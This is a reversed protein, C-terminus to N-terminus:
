GFIDDIEDKKRKKKVRRREPEDIAVSRKVNKVVEESIVPIPASIANEHTTNTYPDPEPEPPRVESRLDPRRVSVGTDEDVDTSIGAPAEAQDVLSSTRRRHPVRGPDLSALIRHVAAWILELVEALESILGSMRSAIAALTLILQIFAGTQMALTFSHYIHALREHMKRVLTLSAGVRELVFSVSAVDPHHTWSGKLLKSNQQLEEGFFSYRLSDVLSPLSLEEVRDGYKRMEAVRRWFLAPRHQNKGKYYLRHLIQLEDSFTDLVPQLRRACLKLDKLAADINPHLAADLSTKATRSLTPPRRSRQISVPM